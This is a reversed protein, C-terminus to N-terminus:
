WTPNSRIKSLAKVSTVPYATIFAAKTPDALEPQIVVLFPASPELILKRTKGDSMVRRHQEMACDELAPRIRDMYSARVSKFVRQKSWKKLPASFAHDFNHDHLVVEIGDHAVIANSAGQLTAAFHARYAAEDALNLLSPLAM